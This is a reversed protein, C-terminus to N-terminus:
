KPNLFFRKRFYSRLPSVFIEGEFHLMSFALHCARKLLLYVLVPFSSCPSASTGSDSKEGVGCVCVFEPLEPLLESLGRMIYKLLEREMMLFAYMELVYVDETSCVQLM